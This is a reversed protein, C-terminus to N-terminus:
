KSHSRDLNGSTATEEHRKLSCEPSCYVEKRENNWYLSEPYEGPIWYHIDNEKIIKIKKNCVKCHVM